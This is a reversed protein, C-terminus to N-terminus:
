DRRKWRSLKVRSTPYAVHSVQSDVLQLARQCRRWRSFFYAISTQLFPNFGGFSLVNKSEWPQGENLFANSDNPKPVAQSLRHQSVQKTTENKKTKSSSATHWSVLSGNTAAHPQEIRHELPTQPEHRINLDDYSSQSSIGSAM